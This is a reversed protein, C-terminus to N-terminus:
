KLAKRTLIIKRDGIRILDLDYALAYKTVAELVMAATFAQSRWHALDMFSSAFFLGSDWVACKSDSSAFRKLTSPNHPKEWKTSALLYTIGSKIAHNYEVELHEEYAINRGINILSIVGLATSLHDSKDEGGPFAGEHQHNKSVWKKQEKLLDKMLKKMANRMKDNRIGGDRWARTVTYPFIMRQPYYLGAKPWLHDNIVKVVLDISDQYGPTNKKDTLSLAFLVNSNVVADVNNVGLPVIGETPNQFVPANEDKLWTLFAGTRKSKWANRKDEKTRGIDRYRAVQLLADVDPKISVEPFRKTYIYQFSVAMSTDDADDPINFIADAGTPNHAKDLCLETWDKTHIRQGKELFAFFKRYKKPDLYALTLWEVQNVSINLPGTRPVISKQGPLTLWFNYAKGRKYRAVSHMARRLMQDIYRERKPLRTEDFLFLPYAIFATMFLNSDQLAVFSRGKFGLRNPIFHVYSAWEGSINEIKDIGFAPIAINESSPLNLSLTSKCGDLERSSDYECSLRGIRARIQNDELFCLAGFITDKIGPEKLRTSITEKINSLTYEQASVWEPVVFLLLFGFLQWIKTM